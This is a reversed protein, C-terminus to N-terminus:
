KLLQMIVLFFLFQCIFIVSAVPNITKVKMLKLLGHFFVALIFWTVYNQVPIINEHWSWMNLLPAVQELVLDYIVMLLPALVVQVIIRWHTWELISASCYVLMAWNIGILLPTEFVKFGLGNGYTYYGFLLHSNIGVVEILYSLLFILSFVFLENKLKFSKHSFLIAVFNLLLAYPILAMFFLHTFQIGIGLVGVVYFLIIILITQIKHRFIFNSVLKM